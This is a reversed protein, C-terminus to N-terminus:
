ATGGLRGMGAAADVRVEPPGIRRLRVGPVDDNDLAAGGAELLQSALSRVLHSTPSDGLPAVRLTVEGTGREVTITGAVDTESTARLTVLLELASRVLSADTEVTLALAVLDDLPPVITAGTEDVVHHLLRALDVVGVRPDRRRSQSRSFDLLVDVLERLDAAQACMRGLLVLRQEDGVRDAHSALIQGAGRIITLPDRVEDSVAGLLGRRMRDLVGMRDLLEAQRALREQAVMVGGLHSTLVEVIEVEEDTPDHRGDWVGVVVAVAHGDILVPTAIEAAFSVAGATTAVSRPWTRAPARPDHRQVVTRGNDLALWGLGRALPRPSAAPMSGSRGLQVLQGGRARMVGAGDCGFSRLANCVVDVAEPVTSGPLSRVADLLEARNRAEAEARLAARRAARMRRVFAGALVATTVLLAGAFVVDPVARGGAIMARGVVAVVGLQLVVRLSVIPLGAMTVVLAAALLLYAEPQHGGDLQLLSVLGVLAGIALVLATGHRGGGGLRGEREASWAVAGAVVALAAATLVFASARAALLAPLVSVGAGSLLWPQFRAGTLDRAGRDGL